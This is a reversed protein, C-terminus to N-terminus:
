STYISTLLVNSNVWPALAVFKTFTSVAQQLLNNGRMQKKPTDVKSRPHVVKCVNQVFSMIYRIQFHGYEELINIKGAYNYTSCITTVM